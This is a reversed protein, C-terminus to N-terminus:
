PVQHMVEPLELCTDENDVSGSMHKAGHKIILAAGLEEQLRIGYQESVYQDDDSQIVAIGQACAAKIKKFDLPKEFFNELERFGLQDTFGAVLIAKGIRQAGGLSELYRMITVTGISHGILILEEDPDGIVAKLCPLWKDLRPEDTDPMAPVSVQYGTKELEAKVWPYWAYEPNGGWCHIIVARKM